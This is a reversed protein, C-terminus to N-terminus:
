NKFLDAGRNARIAIVLRGERRSVNTQVPLFGSCSGHLDVQQALLDLRDPPYAAWHGISEAGDACFLSYTGDNRLVLQM